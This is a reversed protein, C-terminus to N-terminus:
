NFMNYSYKALSDAGFTVDRQKMSAYCHPKTKKCVIIFLLSILIHLKMLVRHFQCNFHEVSYTISQCQM